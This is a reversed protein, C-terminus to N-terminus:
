IEFYSENQTLNQSLDKETTETDLDMKKEKKDYPHRITGASNTSFVTREGNFQRWEKIM